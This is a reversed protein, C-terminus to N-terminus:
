IDADTCAGFVSVAIGDRAVAVTMQGSAEHIVFSFSRGGEIGQLYIVGESRQVSEFKTSRNEGSAETTSITNDDTNIVVFQPVDLDAPTAAYCRDYEICVQVQSAACIMEDVGEVNDAMAAGGICIGMIALASRKM